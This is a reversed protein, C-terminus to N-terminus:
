SSQGPMDPRSLDSMGPIRTGEPKRPGCIRMTRCDPPGPSALPGTEATRNGPRRGSLIAHPSNDSCAIPMGEHVPANFVTAAQARSDGVAFQVIRLHQTPWRDAQIRPCPFSSFKRSGPLECDHFRGSQADRTRSQSQGRCEDSDQGQRDGSNPVVLTDAVESLGPTRALRSSFGGPLRATRGTPQCDSNRSGSCMQNSSGFVPSMRLVSLNCCTRRCRM